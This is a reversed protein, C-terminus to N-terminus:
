GWIVVTLLPGGSGIRLTDGDTLPLPLASPVAVGNVLTLVDTRTTSISWGAATPEIRCHSRGSVYGLASQRQLLRAAEQAFLQPNLLELTRLFWARDLELGRSPVLLEGDIAPWILLCRVTPLAMQERARPDHTFLWLHAGDSIRQTSLPRQPHLMRQGTQGHRLGYPIPAGAPDHSPLQCGQVLLPLLEQPPRDECVVNAQQAGTASQWHLTITLQSPAM